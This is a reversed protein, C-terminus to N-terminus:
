VPEVTTRWSPREWLHQTWRSRSRQTARSVPTGPFPKWCRQSPQPILWARRAAGLFYLPSAAHLFCCYAAASHFIAGSDDSYSTVMGPCRASSWCAWLRGRFASLWWPSTTREPYTSISTATPADGSATLGSRLFPLDGQDLSELCSMDEQILNFICIWNIRHVTKSQCLLAPRLFQRHRSVHVYLSAHDTLRSRDEIGDAHSFFRLGPSLVRRASQSTRKLM